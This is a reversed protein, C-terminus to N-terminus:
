IHYLSLPKASANQDLIDAGRYTAVSSMFGVPSLYAHSVIYLLRRLWRPSDLRYRIHPEPKHNTVLSQVATGTKKM